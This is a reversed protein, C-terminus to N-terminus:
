RSANPSRESWGSTWLDVAIIKDIWKQQAIRRAMDGIPGLGLVLLSGGDPVGAYEVAQWATPLVDSLYIFRDDPRGHKGSAPALLPRCWAPRQSAQRLAVPHLRVHAPAPCMRGCVDESKLALGM